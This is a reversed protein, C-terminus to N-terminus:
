CSAQLTPYPNVADGGGPHIEFHLHTPAGLANGSDGVYGIVAGAEVQGSEGFAELHTGIYMVGDDGALYFQLGGVDGTVPQSFGSIPAVVPTGRPAFLDNGQHFRGGNRPFGWDNVFSAGPVPCAWSGGGPIALNQGIRISNVDAIDNAAAIDGVSIGYHDAISGLTEGDRVTHSGTGGSEVTPAVFTSGSLSLRTGVYLTADTIGNAEALAQATIGYIAAISSLSEGAQVVHYETTSSDGGGGGEGGSEPIRLKDGVRIVNPDSIENARAIATASSGYDAAIRGLTEGNAVVHVQDPEGEEGPIVIEQGPLIFDPNPVDNVDLLQRLTVGHAAAIANLTDGRKVEYAVSGAVIMVAVLGGFVTARLRKDTSLIFTSAFM